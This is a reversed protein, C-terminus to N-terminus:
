MFIDHRFQLTYIARYANSRYAIRIEFVSSGLGKMPKTIDPNQGAAVITLATAIKYQVDQPFKLVAKNATKIWKIKREM